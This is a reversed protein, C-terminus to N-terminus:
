TVKAWNTPLTNSNLIKNMLKLLVKDNDVILFKVINVKIGNPGAAKSAKLKKKM